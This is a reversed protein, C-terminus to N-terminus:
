AHKREHYIITAKKEQEIFSELADIADQYTTYTANDINYNNYDECWEAYEKSVETYKLEEYFNDFTQWGNM